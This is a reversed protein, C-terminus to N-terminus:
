MKILMKVMTTNGVLNYQAYINSLDSAAEYYIFSKNIQHYELVM